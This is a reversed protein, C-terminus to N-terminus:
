GVGPHSAPARPALFHRRAPPVRPESVEVAAPERGPPPPAAPHPGGARFRPPRSSLAAPPRAFRCLSSPPSPPPSLPPPCPAPPAGEPLAAAPRRGRGDGAAAEAGGRAAAAAAAQGRLRGRATGQGPPASGSGSGSAALHGRGPTQGRGEARRLQLPQLLVAVARGAARQQLGPQLGVPGPQHLLQRQPQGGVGDGEAAEQEVAERRQREDGGAGAGGLLYRGARCPEARHGGRLSLPGPHKEPLKLLGM